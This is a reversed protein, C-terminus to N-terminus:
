KIKNYLSTFEKTQGNLDLNLFPKLSFALSTAVLRVYIEM